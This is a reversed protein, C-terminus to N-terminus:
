VDGGKGDSAGPTPAAALMAKYDEAAMRMAEVRLGEHKSTTVASLMEPTPKVPVLAYGEPVWASAQAPPAAISRAFPHLDADEIVWKDGDWKGGARTFAAEIDADSAVAEQGGKLAALEEQLRDIEADKIQELGVLARGRAEVWERVLALEALAADREGVTRLLDNALGGAPEGGIADGENNLGWVDREYKDDLRQCEARLRKCETELADYDSALVFEGDEGESVSTGRPMHWKKVERV